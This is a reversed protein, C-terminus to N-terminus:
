TFTHLHAHQTELHLFIDWHGRLVKIHQEELVLVIAERSSPEKGAKLLFHSLLLSGVLESHAPVQWLPLVVLAFVPVIVVSPAWFRGVNM